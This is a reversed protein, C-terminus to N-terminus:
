TLFMHRSEVAHLAASIPRRVKKEELAVSMEGDPQAVLLAKANPLPQGAVLPGLPVNAQLLVCMHCWLCWTSQLCASASAKNSLVPQSAIVSQATHTHDPGDLSTRLKTCIQANREV